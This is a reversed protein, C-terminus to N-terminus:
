SIDLHFLSLSRCAEGPFPLQLVFSSVFLGVFLCVFMCAFLCRFVYMYVRVDTSIQIYLTDIHSHIHINTFSLCTEM